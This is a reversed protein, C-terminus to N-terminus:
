ESDVDAFSSRANALSVAGGLAAVVVVLAVSGSGVAVANAVTLGGIVGTRGPTV